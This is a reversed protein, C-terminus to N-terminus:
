PCGPSARRRLVPEQQPSSMRFGASTSSAAYSSSAPTVARKLRFRSSRILRSSSPSKGRPLNQWRARYLASSPRTSICRTLRVSWTTVIARALLVAERRPLADM